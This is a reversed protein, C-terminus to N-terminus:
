SIGNGDIGLILKLIMQWFNWEFRGPTLSNVGNELWVPGIDTLSMIPQLATHRLESISGSYLLTLDSKTYTQM